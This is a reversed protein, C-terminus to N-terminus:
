RLRTTIRMLGFGNEFLSAEKFYAFCIKLFIRVTSNDCLHSGELMVMANGIVCLVCGWKVM